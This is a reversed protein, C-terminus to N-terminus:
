KSGGSKTLKGWKSLESRIFATFEEPSEGGLELGQSVAENKVASANLAKATEVQLRKVIETPTGVPVFLGNWGTADIDGYGSEIFTPVDALIPLRRPGSVALARLKGSRIHQTVAVPSLYAFHVHGALVDPLEAGIAKYPVERADIGASAKVKEGLLQTISGPGATGYTLVGPQKKALAVFESLNTAAVFPNTVLVLPSSALRTVPQFRELLLCCADATVLDNLANNINGHFVTYGDAAARAAERAGIAGNAGTRNDIIVSQGLGQALGPAVQRAFADVASGPGAPEIIRVMRNPYPQALASLGICMALSTISGKSARMLACLFQM